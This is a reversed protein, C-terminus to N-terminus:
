RLGTRAPVEAARRALMEALGRAHPKKLLTLHGGAAAHFRMRPAARRWALPVPVLTGGAEARHYLDAPGGYRGPRYEAARAGFKRILERMNAFMAGGGAGEWDGPLEVDGNNPLRRSFLMSLARTGGRFWHGPGAAALNSLHDWYYGPSWFAPPLLHTEILALMAPPKGAAEMRRAMEYAILGGYCFGCLLHPGDPDFALLEEAYEAAMDEVRGTVSGPDFLGRSQFAYCPQDPGLCEILERYILPSGSQNHAFYMPPRTGHPRLPVLSRSVGEGGAGSDLPDATAALAWLEPHRFVREPRIRLGAQQARDVLQLIYLSDGGLDFFNANRDVAPLDLLDKWIDALAREVHNMGSVSVAMAGDKAGGRSRLARRDTKGSPTLPFAEHFRIDAPAAQAPLRSRLWNRLEAASPDAGPERVVHATLVTEGRADPGDAVAADRVGPHSRLMEEVRGADIRYGRVKIFRDIRGLYELCGDGRRRVRDGTRFVTEGPRFPDPVFLRRTREPDGPYGASVGAGGILLEGPAGPPVLRMSEDTVYIRTNAIPKGIPVRGDPPGHLSPDYMLSGVTTEAPGYVNAWRVRGGALEEWRRYAEATAEEGGVSVLRLTEPLKSNGEAMGRTWQAWLNTILHAATIRKEELFRLLENTAALMPESRIVLAAGALWAPFMEHSAMDFNITSYQLVRDEPAYGFFDAAFRHYNGFASHPVCVGKPEGTSGSTYMVMAPADGSLPVGPNSGSMRRLLEDEKDLDFVAAGAPARGRSAADTLILEAGSDRAMFNKTEGPLEPDLPVYVGGAKFIGLIGAAMNISRGACLGVRAGPRVGRGALARAIRNARRNLQGYTISEEGHEAATRGGHREAAAEFLRHYLPSEAAAPIPGRGEEILAVREPERLLGIADLPGCPREAMGTMARRTYELLREAMAAAAEGAGHELTLLFAEDRFGSLSWAYPTSERLEFEINWDPHRRRFWEGLSERDYLVIGGYLPEAGSLGAWERILRDPTDARKRTEMWQARLSKLYDACTQDKIPQVIVPPVEITVGDAVGGYEREMQCVAGFVAGSGGSFRHLVLGWAGMLFTGPSVGLEGAARDVLRSEAPSLRLKTEGSAEAPGEMGGFPPHSPPSYGELLRTWYERHVSPDRKALWEAYDRFPHSPEVPPPQRNRRKAELRMLAEELIRRMSRGDLLAHHFTWILAAERRSQILTLRFIPAELCNLGRSRDELLFREVSDGFDEVSSHVIDFPIEVREEVTWVPEDGGGRSLRSRLIERNAATERWADRLADADVGDGFRAVAQEIYVGPRRRQAGLMGMQTRTPPHAASDHM